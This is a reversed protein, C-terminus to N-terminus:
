SKQQTYTVPSYMLSLGQLNMLKSVVSPVVQFQNTDLGLYIILSEIGSFAFDSISSLRNVGLKLSVNNGNAYDKLNSFAYDGVTSMDNMQLDITWHETM